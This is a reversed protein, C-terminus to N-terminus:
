GGFVIADPVTYREEGIQVLTDDGQRTASFVARDAQSQDYGTAKGKDFFIVRQRGGPLMVTVMATGGGERKVGFRCDGVGGPLSCPLPGTAHFDTGAVKADGPPGKPAQGSTAAAIAVELTYDAREGRRAASRMMYVRVRYQGDAPLTGEYAKGQTSANFFAVDQEGPALLNFYTATHGTTLKITASQGQRARVTYDIAQYGKISGKVVASSAGKAFQLPRTEIGDAAFAPALAGAVPLVALAVLLGALTPRLRMAQTARSNRSTSM